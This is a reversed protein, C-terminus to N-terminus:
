VGRAIGNVLMRVIVTTIYPSCFQGDTNHFDNHWFLLFINKSIEPNAMIQSMEYEIGTNFLQVINNSQLEQLFVRHDKM